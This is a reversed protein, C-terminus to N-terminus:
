NTFIKRIGLCNKKSTWKGCDLYVRKNDKFYAKYFKGCNWVLHRYPIDEIEITEELPCTEYLENQYIWEFRKSVYYKNKVELFQNKSCKVADLPITEVKYEKTPSFARIFVRDLSKSFYAGYYIEKSIHKYTKM